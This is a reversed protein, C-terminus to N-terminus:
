WPRGPSGYFAPLKRPNDGHFPLASRSSQGRDDRGTVTIQKAPSPLVPLSLAVGRALNQGCRSEGLVIESKSGHVQYCALPFAGRSLTGLRNGGFGPSCARRFHLINKM